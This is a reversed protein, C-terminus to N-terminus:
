SFRAPLILCLLMTPTTAPYALLMHARMACRAHPPPLMDAFLLRAIVYKRAQAFGAYRYPCIARLATVFRRTSPLM